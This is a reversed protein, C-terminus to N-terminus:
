SAHDGEKKQRRFYERVRDLVIRRILTENLLQEIFQREALTLKALPTALEGAITLKAAITSAYCDEAATPFAQRPIDSPVSQTILTINEGTLM